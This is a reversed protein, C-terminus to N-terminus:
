LAAPRPFVRSYGFFAVPPAGASSHDQRPGSGAMVEEGGIVDDENKGGTTANAEANTSVGATRAVAVCKPKMARGLDSRQCLRGVAIIPPTAITALTIAVQPIKRSRRGPPPIPRAIIAPLANRDITPITSSRSCM